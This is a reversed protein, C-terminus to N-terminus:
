ASIHLEALIPGQSVCLFQCMHWTTQWQATRWSKEEDRVLRSNSSSDAVTAEGIVPVAVAQLFAGTSNLAYSVLHSINAPDIKYFGGIFGQIVGSVM